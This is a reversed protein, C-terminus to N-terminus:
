PLLELVKEPPRGIVARNGAIAIPRQILKPESTMAALLRSDPLSTDALGLERYAEETTRLLDRAPIGLRALLTKLEAATPVDELYLRLRPPAGHEELLALAQRSKSCRPNHYLTIQTM